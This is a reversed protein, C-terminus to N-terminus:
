GRDNSKKKGVTEGTGSITGLLECEWRAELLACILILAPPAPSFLLLRFPWVVDAKGVGWICFLIPTPACWAIECPYPCVGCRFWPDDESDAGTDVTSVCGWWLCCCRFKSFSEYGGCWLCCCSESICCLKISRCSCIFTPLCCGCAIIDCGWPMM